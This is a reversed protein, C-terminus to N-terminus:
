SQDQNKNEAAWKGVMGTLKDILPAVLDVKCRDAMVAIAIVQIVGIVIPGTWNEARLLAAVDFAAIGVIFWIFKDEAHRNRLDDIETQLAAIQEDRRAAPEALLPGLSPEPQPPQLPPLDVVTSM